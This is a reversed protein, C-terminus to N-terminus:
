ASFEAMSLGCKIAPDNRLVRSKKDRLHTLDEKIYVGRRRNHERLKPKNRIMNAKM